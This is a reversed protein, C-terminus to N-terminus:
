NAYHAGQYSVVRISGPHDNSTQARRLELAVEGCPGCVFDTIVDSFVVWEFPRREGCRQCTDM